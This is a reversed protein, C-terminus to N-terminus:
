VPGIDSVSSVLSGRKVAAVENKKPLAKGVSM